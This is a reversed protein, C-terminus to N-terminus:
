LSLQAFNMQAKTIGLKTAVRLRRNRSRQSYEDENDTEEPDGYFRLLALSKTKNWSNRTAGEPLMENGAVLLCCLNPPTEVHESSPLVGLKNPVECLADNRSVQSNSQM